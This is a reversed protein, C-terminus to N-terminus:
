LPFKRLHRLDHCSQVQVLVFKRETIKKGIRTEFFNEIIKRMKPGAEFKCIKQRSM